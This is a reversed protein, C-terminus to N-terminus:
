SPIRFERVDVERVVSQIAVSSVRGKCTISLTVFESEVKSGDCEDRHRSVAPKSDFRSRPPVDKRMGERERKERSRVLQICIMNAAVRLVLNLFCAFAASLRAAVM